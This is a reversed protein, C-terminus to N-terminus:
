NKSALADFVCSFVNQPINRLPKAVGKLPAPTNNFQKKAANPFFIFISKLCKQAAMRWGVLSCKLPGSLYAEASWWEAQATSLIVQLSAMTPALEGSLPASHPAGCTYTYIYIYQVRTKEDFHKSKFVPAGLPAGYM